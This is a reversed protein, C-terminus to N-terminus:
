GKDTWVPNTMCLFREGGTNSSLEGRFYTAKNVPRFSNQWTFVPSGSNWEITKEIKEKKEGAMGSYIRLSQLRGFEETSLANCVLGGEKYEIDLFPGDTAIYKGERLNEILTSKNLDPLYICTRSGGFRLNSNETLQVFPIKLRRLRNFDGHADSGAIMNIKQGELLLEIWKKKGRLFGRDRVGSWFQMGEIGSKLEFDSWHGRNLAFKHITGLECYPHAAFCVGGQEHTMRIAQIASHEPKKDIKRRAGDGSGEILKSNGIALMHINQDKKNGCSVEEGNLVVFDKQRLSSIEIQQNNWKEFKPDMILYNNESCMLDYSHDAVVMWNLGMSRAIRATEPIPAGFEVHSTSYSTHIHCDGYYWGPPAPFKVPSIKVRMQGHSLTPLNDNIVTYEKGGVSIEIKTNITVTKGIYEKVPLEYIKSFMPQEIMFSKKELVEKYICGLPGAFVATEISIIKVPYKDSDKILLLLPINEDPDVRSPADTVIEPIKKAILSLGPLFSYHTEAYGLM